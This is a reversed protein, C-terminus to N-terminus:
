LIMCKHFSQLLNLFPTACQVCHDINKPFLSKKKNLGLKYKTRSYSYKQQSMKIVRTLSLFIYFPSCVQFLLPDTSTCFHSLAIKQCFNSHLYYENRHQNFFILFCKSSQLMQCIM